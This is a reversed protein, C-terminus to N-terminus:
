NNINQSVILSVQKQNFSMVIKVYFFLVRLVKVLIFNDPKTRAALSTKILM